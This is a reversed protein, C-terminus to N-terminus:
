TACGISRCVAPQHLHEVVATCAAAFLRTPKQQHAITREVVAFQKGSRSLVGQEGVLGLVGGHLGLCVGAVVIETKEVVVLALAICLSAHVDTDTTQRYVRNCFRLLHHILQDSIHLVITEAFPLVLQNEQSVVAVVVEMCTHRFLTCLAYAPLVRVKHDIFDVEICVRLFHIGRALTIRQRFVLQIVQELVSCEIHVVGSMAAVIGDGVLTHHVEFAYLTHGIGVLCEPHQSCATEGMEVRAFATRCFLSDEVGVTTGDADDRSSTGNISRLVGIDVSIEAIGKESM